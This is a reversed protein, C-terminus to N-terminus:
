VLKPGLPILVSPREDGTSTNLLAGKCRSCRPHHFFATRFSCQGNCTCSHCPWLNIRLGAISLQSGVALHSGSRLAWWVSLMTLAPVDGQADAAQTGGGLSPARLLHCISSELHPSCLWPQCLELEGEPEGPLATASPLNQETWQPSGPTSKISPDLCSTLDPLHELM